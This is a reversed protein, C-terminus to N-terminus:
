LFVVMRRSRKRPRRPTSRVKHRRWGTYLYQVALIEAILVGLVLWYPIAIVFAPEFLKNM